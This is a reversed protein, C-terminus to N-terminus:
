EGGSFLASAAAAPTRNARQRRRTQTANDGGLSLDAGSTVTSLASCAATPATEPAIIAAQAITSAMRDGISTLMVRAAAERADAEQRLREAAAHDGDRARAEALHRAEIARTTTM